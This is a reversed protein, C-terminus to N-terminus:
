IKKIEEDIDIGHNKCIQILKNLIGLVMQAEYLTDLHEDILDKCEKTLELFEHKHNLNEQLLGIYRAVNDTGFLWNLILKKM